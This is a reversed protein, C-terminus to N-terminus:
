SKPDQVSLTKIKKFLNLLFCCCGGPVTRARVSTFNSHLHDEELVLPTSDKGRTGTGTSPTAGVRSVRQMWPTREQTLSEDWKQLFCFWLSLFASYHRCCCLADRIILWHGSDRWKGLPTSMLFLMLSFGSSRARFSTVNGFIELTFFRQNIYTIIFLSQM